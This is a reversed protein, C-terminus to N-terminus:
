RAASTGTSMNPTSSSSGLARERLHECAVTTPRVSGAQSYYRIRSAHARSHARYPGSPPTSSLLSPSPTTRTRLLHLSPTTSSGLVSGRPSRRATTLGAFAAPAFLRSNSPYVLPYKNIASVSVLILLPRPSLVSNLASYTGM